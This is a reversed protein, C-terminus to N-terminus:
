DSIGTSQMAQYAAVALTLMIVQRFGAEIPGTEIFEDPRHANGGRTIGITVTPHKAALPVNGDTSGTELTGHIGVQELAALAGQVLPHKPDLYGAPRDGVVEVSFKLDMTRIAEIYNLIQKELVALAEYAESRMDLWMSAQMAISNISHGGEIMGINYTTRPVQPPQIRIIQAGLEVLGHIASPRGFNQWSHGGETTATILLRRVAIGAHYVHGLALGELNIVSLTRTKLREFAARIGKLDGLGEECSNAVLWLDCAPTIRQQNLVAALALLSAVGLSNDGLGPGFIVGNEARVELNTDRDFVTDTHASILIGPVNREKGPILGYVNHAEDVEVQDLNLLEFQEKVYAARLAEQFTPAPIQQITVAQGTVWQSMAPLWDWNVERNIKEVLRRM